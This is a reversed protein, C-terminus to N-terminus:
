NNVNYNNHYKYNKENNNFIVNNYDNDVCNAYVMYNNDDKYNYNNDNNNDEDNVNDYEDNNEIFKVVNNIISDVHSYFLFILILM